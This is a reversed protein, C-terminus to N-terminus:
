GLSGTSARSRIKLSVGNQTWTLRGVHGHLHTTTRCRSFKALGDGEGNITIWLKTNGDFAFGDGIHFHLRVLDADIGIWIALDCELRNIFHGKRDCSGSRINQLFLRSLRLGLVFQDDVPVLPPGIGLVGLEGEVDLTM